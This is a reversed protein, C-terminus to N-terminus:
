KDNNNIVERIKDIYFFDEPMKDEDHQKIIQEIEQLKKMSEMASDIKDQMDGNLKDLEDIRNWSDSLQRKLLDYKEREVVDANPRKSVVEILNDINVFKFGETIPSRPVRFKDLFSILDYKDIYYKAM